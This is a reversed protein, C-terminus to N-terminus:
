HKLNLDRTTEDGPHAPQRMYTTSSFPVPAPLKHNQVVYAGTRLHFWTDADGVEGSFMALLAIAALALVVPKMWAPSAVPALPAAPVPAATPRSVPRSPM